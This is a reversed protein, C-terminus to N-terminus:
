ATDDDSDAFEPEDDLGGLSVRESQNLHVLSSVLYAALLVATVVGVSIGDPLWDLYSFGLVASGLLSLGLYYVSWPVTEEPVVELYVDLNKAKATPSLRDGDVTIM